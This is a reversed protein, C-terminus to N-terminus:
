SQSVEENKSAPDKISRVPDKISRVPEEKSPRAKELQLVLQSRPVELELRVAFVM